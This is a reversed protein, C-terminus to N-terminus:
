DVCRFPIKCQRSILWAAGRHGCGSLRIHNCLTCRAARGPGHALCYSALLSHPILKGISFTSNGLLKLVTSLVGRGRPRRGANARRRLIHGSRAYLVLAAAFYLALQTLEPM